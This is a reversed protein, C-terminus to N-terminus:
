SRDALLRPGRVYTGVGGNQWWLLLGVPLGLNTDTVQFVGQRFSAFYRYLDDSTVEDLSQNVFVGVADMSHSHLLAADARIAVISFIISGAVGYFAIRSGRRLEDIVEQAIQERDPDMENRDIM